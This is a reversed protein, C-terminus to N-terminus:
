VYLYKYNELWKNIANVKTLTANKPWSASGYHVIYDNFRIRNFRNPVRRVDEYLSAGTDYHCSTLSIMRNPDFFNILLDKLRSVNLYCIMPLIRIDFEGIELDGVVAFKDDVFDVAKKLLADSDVLVFNDGINDMLWQVSMSHKMSGFNTGVTKEIYTQRSPFKALESDFDILKNTTNDIYRLSPWKDYEFPSTDSNDFLIIEAGPHLKYISSVLASTITPTNYHVISFRM